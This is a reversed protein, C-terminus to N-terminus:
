YIEWAFISAKESGWTSEPILRVASTEVKLDAKILRQYNNKESYVVNWNGNIDKAEIRFAKVLTEPVTKPEVELPYCCIMERTSTAAPDSDGNVQKASLKQKRIMRNLDSDFIIRMNKINVPNDFSYELWDGIKGTWCNGYHSIRRDIGNRLLNPEGKSATLKVNSNLATVKRAKRPIYCGDDMLMEQLQEIHGNEYVGRPSTKEKFAVVAATGIAQGCLACTAMVRTSSLAAHTVSINRGAFFLNDINKSYLCRYPIEYPSPAYHFVTPEDKHNFGNPHHDDMPWGGYAAIDDFRGEDKIDNQTLTYDGVYRRSERKGPLMGIWDIAWNAAKDKDKCYNKIHDWVGYAMKLLEDRIKEADKITDM